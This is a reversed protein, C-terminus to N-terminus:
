CRRDYWLIYDTYAQDEDFIVFERFTDVAAKRDAILSDHRGGMVESLEWSVDREESILARGLLVRCLLLPRLGAFPHKPPAVETYEDCKLANEAFYIGKGFADGHRVGALSLLFDEYAISEANSPSTGHFLFVENLNEDLPGQAGPHGVLEKYDVKVNVDEVRVFRGRPCTRIAHEILHRRQLYDCFCAVNEIRQVRRVILRSPMEAGRRDRSKKGSFASSGVSRDVARQMVQLV